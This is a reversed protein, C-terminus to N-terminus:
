PKETSESESAKRTKSGSSKKSLSGPSSEALPTVAEAKKKNMGELDLIDSVYEM